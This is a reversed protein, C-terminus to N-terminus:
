VISYTAAGKVRVAGVPIESSSEVDYVKIDKPSAM